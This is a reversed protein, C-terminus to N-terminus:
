QIPERMMIASDLLRAIERAQDSPPEGPAAVRLLSLQFEVIGPYESVISRDM